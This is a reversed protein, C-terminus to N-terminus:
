LDFILSFCETKQEARYELGDARLQNLRDQLPLIDGEFEEVLIFNEENEKKWITIM